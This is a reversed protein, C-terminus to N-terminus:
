ASITASATNSWGPACGPPSASHRGLVTGVVLGASPAQGIGSTILTLIGTGDRELLDMRAGIHLDGGIFSAGRGNRRMGLMARLLM